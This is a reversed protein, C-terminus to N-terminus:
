GPHIHRALDSPSLHGRLALGAVAEQLAEFTPGHDNAVSAHARQEGCCNRPEATGLLRVQARRVGDHGQVDAEDVGPRLQDLRVGEPRVAALERVVEELVVQLRDVRRADLKGAVGPLHRTAVDEDAARDSRETLRRGRANAPLEERLLSGDEVPAAGVDEHDLREVVQLLHDVRDLRHPAHRAQRDHRQQRKVFASLCKCADGGGLRGRPEHLEVDCRDAGIVTGAQEGGERCELLHSLVSLRECRKRVDTECAHGGATDDIGVRRRLVEPLEGRVCAVQAGFTIPPQQPVVGASIAAIRDATSSSRLGRAGSTKSAGSSTTASPSSCFSVPERTRQCGPLPDDGDLEIGREAAVASPQQFDCARQLLGPADAPDVDVVVGGGAGPHARQHDGRRDLAAGLDLRDRM